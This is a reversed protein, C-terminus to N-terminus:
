GGKVLRLPGDQGAEGVKSRLDALERAMDALQVALRAVTASLDEDKRAANGAVRLLKERVSTDLWRDLQGLERRINAAHIEAAKPDRHAVAEIDAAMQRIRVIRGHGDDLLEGAGRVLQDSSPM